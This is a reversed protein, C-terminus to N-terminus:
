RRNSCGAPACCRPRFASAAERRFRSLARRPRRPPPRYLRHAGDRRDLFNDGGGQAEVALAPGQVCATGRGAGAGLRARCAPTRRRGPPSRAGGGAPPRASHISRRGAPPYPCRGRRRPRTGRAEARRRADCPFEISCGARAAERTTETPRPSPPRCSRTGRSGCGQGRRSGFARFGTRPGRSM